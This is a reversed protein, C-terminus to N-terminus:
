TETAADEHLYGESSQSCLTKMEAKWKTEITNQLIFLRTGQFVPDARCCFIIQIFVSAAKIFCQHKTPILFCSCPAPTHKLARHGREITEFEKEEGTMRPIRTCLEKVSTCM